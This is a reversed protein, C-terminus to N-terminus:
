AASSLRGRAIAQIEGVTSVDNIAEDPFEIGLEDEIDCLLELAHMSEMNLDAVLEQDPRIEAVDRKVVKAVIERVRRDLTQADM